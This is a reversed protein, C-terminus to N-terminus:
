AKAKRFWINLKALAKVLSETENPTLDQLIADIMNHHFQEHHEYAHKGKESLSIYVVHGPFSSLFVPTYDINRQGFFSPMGILMM